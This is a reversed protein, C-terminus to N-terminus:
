RGLGIRPFAWRQSRYTHGSNANNKARGKDGRFKREYYSAMQLNTYPKSPQAMMRALIGNILPDTYQDVLEHPVIPFMDRAVPDTVTLAVVATYPEPANDPRRLIIKETGDMFAGYVPSGDRHAWLLRVIKGAVPVLYAETADYPLVFEIEDQWANTDSFFERCVMFLEVRIAEDMAGPLHPKITMMLRDFPSAM